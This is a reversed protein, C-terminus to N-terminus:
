EWESGESHRKLWAVTRLTSCDMGIVLGPRDMWTLAALIEDKSYRGLHSVVQIDDEDDTTCFYLDQCIEHTLFSQIPM